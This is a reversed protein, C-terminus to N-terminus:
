NRSIEILYINEGIQHFNRYLVKRNLEIGLENYGVKMPPPRKKAIINLKQSGPGTTTIKDSIQQM